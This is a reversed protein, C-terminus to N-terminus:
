VEAVAPDLSIEEGTAIALPHRNMLHVRGEARHDAPHLEHLTVPEAHVLSRSQHQGSAQKATGLAMGRRHTAGM